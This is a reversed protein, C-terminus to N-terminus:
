GLWLELTAPDRHRGDHGIRRRVVRGQRVAEPDLERDEGVHRESRNARVPHLVLALVDCPRRGDDDIRRATDPPHVNPIAGGVTRQQWVDEPNEVAESAM